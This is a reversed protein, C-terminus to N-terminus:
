LKEVTIIIILRLKRKMLPIILPKLGIALEPLVILNPITFHYRGHIEELKPLSCGIELEISEIIILNM